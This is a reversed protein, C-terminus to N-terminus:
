IKYQNLLALAYAKDNCQNTFYEGTNYFVTVSYYLLPQITNTDYENLFTIADEITLATHTYGHTPQITIKEITRTLRKNLLILFNHLKEKFIEIFNNMFINRQDDTLSALQNALTQIYDRGSNEEWIINCGITNFAEQMECYTFHLVHFGESILQNISNQSFNGSLIAGYFPLDKGAAKIIPQIAGSIEQVKNKSHKTYRRWAVEIFAKPHGMIEETGNAEIVIDLKHKNGNIDCKVVDLEGNRAKRPHRYDVYYGNQILNQSLFLIITEEFLSGITEGLQHSPSAPM